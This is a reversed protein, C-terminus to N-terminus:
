DDDVLCDPDGRLAGLMDHALYWMELVQDAATSYGCSRLFSAYHWLDPIEISEVDVIRRDIGAPSRVIRM